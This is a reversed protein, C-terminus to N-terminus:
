LVALAMIANVIDGDSEKLAKVAQPRKVDTQAMVLEIDGDKLGTESINDDVEVPEEAETTAAAPAVQPEVDKFQEAAASQAAASLDEVKAEGFIVYTDSSPSKFVDPKSIVFLTNPKRKLTVRNVGPVPKLGLKSMAKRTKKEARSQKGGGHVDDHDHDHDDHDHEHDHDHDDDHDHEDDEDTADGVEAEEAEAEEAEPEEKTVEEVVEEKPVEATEVTTEVM